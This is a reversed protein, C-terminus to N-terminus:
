TSTPFEVVLIRGSDGSNSTGGSIAVTASHSASPALGKYTMVGMPFTMHQNAPNIFMTTTDVVTSDVTLTASMSVTGVTTFATIQWIILVYSTPNTTIFNITVPWAGTIVANYRFQPVASKLLGGNELRKLRNEFDQLLGAIDRDHTYLIKGM